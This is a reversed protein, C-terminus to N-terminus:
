GRGSTTYMDDRRVQNQVALQLGGQAKGSLATHIHVQDQRYAPYPLQRVRQSLGM